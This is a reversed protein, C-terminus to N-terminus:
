VFMKQPNRQLDKGIIDFREIGMHMHLQEFSLNDDSSYYPIYLLEHLPKRPISISQEMQNRLIKIKIDHNDKEMFTCTIWSDMYIDNNLKEYYLVPKRGNEDSVINIPIDQIELLVDNKILGNEYQKWDDVVYLKNDKNISLPYYLNSYYYDQGNILQKLTYTNVIISTSNYYGVVIGTTKNNYHVCLGINIKSNIKHVFISPLIVNWFNINAEDINTIKTDGVFHNKKPFNLTLESAPNVGISKITWIRLLFPYSLRSENLEIVTDKYVCTAITAHTFHTKDINFPTFVVSQNHYSMILGYQSGITLGNANLYDVKVEGDISNM